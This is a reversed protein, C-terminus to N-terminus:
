REGGEQINCMMFHHVSSYNLHKGINACWFRVHEYDLELIINKVLGKKLRTILNSIIILAM